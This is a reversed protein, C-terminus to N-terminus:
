RPDPSRGFPLHFKCGSASMAVGDEFARIRTIAVRSSKVIIRSVRRNTAEDMVWCERALLASVEKISLHLSVSFFMLGFVAFRADGALAAIFPLFLIIADLILFSARLVAREV